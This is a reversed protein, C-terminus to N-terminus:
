ERLFAAAEKMLEDFGDHGEIGKAENGDFYEWNVKPSVIVHKMLEEYFKETSFKGEGTQVRDQIRTAERHGPHQLTYETGEVEVIKQTGLKTTM